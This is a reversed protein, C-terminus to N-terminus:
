HQQTSYNIMWRIGFRDAFSGFYDGWFADEMPMEIEGGESLGKFLRDAEERSETHVSIYMSNGKNLVHGFSPLIDSAMLITDANIPLSIHMIRNKENEPVNEMGPGDSMRSVMLFEGGFVSKYLNFAEEAQGDFNLYPNMKAM